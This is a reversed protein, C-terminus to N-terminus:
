SLYVVETRKDLAHFLVWVRENERRCSTIAHLLPSPSLGVTFYNYHIVRILYQLPLNLSPLSLLQLPTTPTHTVIRNGIMGRM